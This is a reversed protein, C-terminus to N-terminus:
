KVTIQLNATSRCGMEYLFMSLVLSHRPEELFNILFYVHLFLTKVDDSKYPVIVSRDIQLDYM